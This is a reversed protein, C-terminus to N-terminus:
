KLGLLHAIPVSLGAAIRALTQLTPSAEGREVKGIAEVSLGSEYALGLQTM